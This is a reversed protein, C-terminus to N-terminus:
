YKFPGQIKILYSLENNVKQLVHALTNQLQHKSTQKSSKSWQLQIKSTLKPLKLSLFKKLTYILYKLVSNKLKEFYIM